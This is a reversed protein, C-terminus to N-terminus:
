QTFTAIVAIVQNMTVVCDGTGSCGGGSWGTFTSGGSAVATLTVVTNPMYNEICDAGCQIGAPVSTVTGTGTGAKSVTLAYTLLNFAAQIDKNANMTITCPGTGSCGGGSWGSFVSGILPAANLTIMNGSVINETCDAGCAIGIPDSSVSGDGNGTRSLNLSYTNLSFDAVVNKTANMSVVCPGTGFCGGGSWGAFLSGSVPTAVLTVTTGYIFDEACDAGCQIGSPTSQISGSGNGTRSLNLFYYNLSFDANVTQAMSMTVECPELGLCGGGSWGLFTSGTAATASLAIVSNQAYSESCDAGCQIGSPASTITGTGGGSKTVNLTSGFEFNANVTIASSMTLTCPGNGSCGGGSWGTFASGSAPTASLTVMTNEDFDESCDAGCQIGAPVSTITGTGAGSRTVLLTYKIGFTATVNTANAMTVTCPGSGSCGGGSWGTFTSNSSPAATLTIMTNELYNETCDAGCQIGSPISTVTGTGLGSKNVQLTHTIATFTATVLQPSNVELTCPGGGSCAGSWGIFTSGSAPTASLILDTGCPYDSLCQMGCDIGPVSSIITGTGTGSTSVQVPYILSTSLSVPTSQGCANYAWVFLLHPTGICTLGTQVFQTSLFNDVATNYNNTTNYKYGIADSVANWNWTIQNGTSFHEAINPTNPASLCGCRIIQWQGNIYNELCDTTTNFIQLGEAPTPIADRQMTTMRPPLFGKSTSQLEVLASTDPTLTGIGVNQSFAFPLSLFLYVILGYINKM